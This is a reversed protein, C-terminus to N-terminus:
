RETLPLWPLEKFLQESSVERIKRKLIIRAGRKQLRLLRDLYTKYLIAVSTYLNFLQIICNGVYMLALM